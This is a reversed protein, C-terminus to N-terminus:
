EGTARRRRALWDILIRNFAEAREINPLHRGASIVELRSDPIRDHILEADAVTTGQDDAGVIVLTPTRISGLQATFDFDNIARACGVYGAVRTKRLMARVQEIRGPQAAIFAESFWRPLTSEIVPELSGAQEVTRIRDEWIGAQARNASSRTDCLVLSELLPAHHIGLAQGIMGGISLGVFHTRAIGLAGLVGAVDDALMRLTYPGPPTDSDGHGRMDLRLVRWDRLAPMQEDWMGSDAALSHAFTVVPAGEPGDLRYALRVGNASVQM